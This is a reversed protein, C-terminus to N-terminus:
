HSNSRPGRWALHPHCWGKEAKEQAKLESSKDLSCRAVPYLFHTVLLLSCFVQDKMFKVM